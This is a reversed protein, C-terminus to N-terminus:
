LGHAKHTIYILPHDSISQLVTPKKRLILLSIPIAHRLLRVTRLARASETKLRTGSRKNSQESTSSYAFIRVTTCDLDSIALHVVGCKVIKLPSNTICLDILSRSYLTIRTPETILQNLGYIDLIHKLKVANSVTTDSLFDVKIDGM